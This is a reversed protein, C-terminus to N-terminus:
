PSSLAGVLAPQTRLNEPRDAREQVRRTDARRSRWGHYAWRDGLRVDSATTRGGAVPHMKGQEPDAGNKVSANSHASSPHLTLM